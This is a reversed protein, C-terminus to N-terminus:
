KKNCNYTYRETSFIYYTHELQSTFEYFYHVTFARVHKRIELYQNQTSEDRRALVAVLDYVEDIYHPHTHVFYNYTVKVM